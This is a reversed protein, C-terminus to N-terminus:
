PIVNGRGRELQVPQEALAHDSRLDGGRRVQFQGELAPLPKPELSVDSCYSDNVILTSVGRLTIM